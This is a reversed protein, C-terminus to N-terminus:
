RQRAPDQASTSRMEGRVPPLRQPEEPPTPPVEPRLEPPVVAPYYRSLHSGYLPKYAGQHCTACNVKVIDGMPGRREPPFLTVLPEASFFDRNLERAMRIGHWATVRQPSSTEWTQFSQANHCFTCNVGLGKSMHIMLAYTHEAQKISSRNAAEGSAALARPGNIRIPLDDFLYDRFVQNPLSSQGVVPLPENQGAKDGLMRSTNDSPPAFAWHERPVPQGRHCTYCTVGTQAVHATWNANIYQTMQFMRRAVKKTYLDDAALNGLVHCYACGQEPSVWATIATMTRGFEGVSLDGLVQVNEYVEGAKPQGERIRAPRAVPPEANIDEQAEIHRPNYVQVMGTGRYGGQVAEMPPRECATLLLAATSAALLRPLHTALRALSAILRM